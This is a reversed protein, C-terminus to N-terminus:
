STYSQVLSLLTIARNILDDYTLIQIKGNFSLNRRLLKKENSKGLAQTRGIVIFGRPSKINKLKEQAYSNKEEIWDQWDLVQQEAHALEKSVNGSKTYLKLNSSEIEVLDYTGDSSELAYDMVYESGLKHKPIIKKYEVGFFMPNRLLFEQLKSENRSSSNLINEFEEISNKLRQIFKTGSAYEEIRKQFKKNALSVEGPYIRGIKSIKLLTEMDNELNFENYRKIKVKKNKGDIKMIIGNQIIEEQIKKLEENIEDTNGYVPVNMVMALAIHTKFHDIDDFGTICLTQGVVIELTKVDICRLILELIYGEKENKDVIVEECNHILYGYVADNSFNVCMEPDIKKDKFLKLFEDKNAGAVLPIYRKEKSWKEALRDM